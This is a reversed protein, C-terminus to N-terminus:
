SETWISKLRYIELNKMKVSEPINIRVSLNQPNVLIPVPVYVLGDGAFIEMFTRDVFVRIKQVGGHAPVRFTHGEISWEAKVNDYTLKCGRLWFTVPGAAKDDKAEFEAVLEFLEARFEELANAQSPGDRLGKLERVPQRFLRPGDPTSRLSLEVPLTMLQNFPMGPSAAPGWAMLIVRGDPVGSFTQGAYYAWGKGHPGPLREVEPTFRRGDFEGIAYEGNAGFLVWKNKEPKNDLSLPVLDPCEYLYKDEGIGGEVVSETKWSKLDKSSLIQVTHRHKKWAEGPPLDLKEMTPLGAYLVMVWHGAGPHWFVKPDRNGPYMQDVVPNKEFKTFAHGDLSWALDQTVRKGHGTYLLILPMKKGSGLGSTNKEDVVASGSFMMRHEEPLLDPYLAVPLERWHVLDKSVAHGWHMNGWHWGYPNHQYFLHYEGQYFCLGNPDNLWGRQSSFHFQPRLKEHYLNEEDWIKDSKQVLGLATSGPAPASNAPWKGDVRIVAEKGQWSSMDTHAFWDPKESLEIAFAHVMKGDVTVTVRQTPGDKEGTKVPWLLYRHDLRIKRELGGSRTEAEVARVVSSTPRGGDRVMERLKWLAVDKVFGEGEGRLEVCHPGTAEFRATLPLYLGSNQEFVEIGSRDILIRVKMPSSAAPCAYEKGGWSIKGRAAEWRLEKGRITVTLVKTEDATFELDALEPAKMSLGQRWPTDAFSQKEMRLQDLEAVPWARLQPKGTADTVLSLELPVTMSNFFLEGEFWNNFRALLIVRGDPANSFTQGAYYEGGAHLSKEKSTLVLGQDSIDALAYSGGAGLFVWRQDRSNGDLPLRFLDPCERDKPRLRGPLPQWSLLNQSTLTIYGADDSYLLMIWRGTKEDWAVKPDRNGPAISSVIPNKPYPAFTQGGDTSVALCVSHQEHMSRRGKGGAATYFLFIPPNGGRGLGSVNGTDVVASGSFAPGKADPLLVDAREEWDVLNDSVAFGWGVACHEKWDTWPDFPFHQYFMFWKGQHYFLGNADSLLGRRCTYHFGPRLPERYIKDQEAIQDSLQLQAIEQASIGEVELVLNRGMWRQLDAFVMGQPNKFDLRAHFEYELNGTSPDVLRIWKQPISEQLRVPLNLYRRDVVVRLTSKEPQTLDAVQNAGDAVGLPFAVGVTLVLGLLPNKM